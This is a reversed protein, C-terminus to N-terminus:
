VWMPAGYFIDHEIFFFSRNPLKFLCRKRFILDNLKSAGLVAQHERVVQYSWFLSIVGSIHPPPSAIDLGVGVFVNANCIGM